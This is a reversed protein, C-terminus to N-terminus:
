EDAPVGDITFVRTSEQGRANTARATFSISGEDPVPVVALRLWGEDDYLEDGARRDDDWVMYDREGPEIRELQLRGFTVGGRTLALSTAASAGAQGGIRVRVETDGSRHSVRNYSPVTSQEQEDDVSVLRIGDIRAESGGTQLPLLSLPNVYFGTRRDYVEFRARGQGATGISRGSLVREGAALGDPNLGSYITRWGNDHDLVVIGGARGPMDTEGTGSDRFVVTGDFAAALDGGEAVFEVGRLMGGSSGPFGFGTEIYEPDMPWQWGGLIAAVLIAAAPVILLRVRM